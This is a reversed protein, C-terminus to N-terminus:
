KLVWWVIFVISMIIIGIIISVVIGCAHAIDDDDYINGKDDWVKSM